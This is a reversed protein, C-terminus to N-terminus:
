FCFKRMAVAVGDDNNKPAIFKAIEKLEPVANGVAVGMGAIKIMELDNYNDGCILCEDLSFNLKKALYKIANHKGALLNNSDLMYATPSHVILRGEFRKKFMDVYRHRFEPEFATLIKHVRRNHKKVFDSIKGVVTYSVGLVEAYKDAFECRKEIFLKDDFYTHCYLGESESLEAAEIALDPEVAADYLVEGSVSTKVLAGQYSIIPMDADDLGINALQSMAGSHMRGTALLFLGGKARFEKITDRTFESVTNDKTLLTGDCDTIVVRYKM